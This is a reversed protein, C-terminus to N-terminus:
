SVSSPQDSEQIHHIDACSKYGSFWAERYLEVDVLTRWRQVALSSEIDANCGLTKKDWQLMGSEGIQFAQGVLVGQIDLRHKLLYEIRHYFSYLERLLIRSLSGTPRYVRRRGQRLLRRVISRPVSDVPGYASLSPSTQLTQPKELVPSSESFNPSQM